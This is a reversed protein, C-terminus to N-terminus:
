DVSIRRSSLLVAARLDHSDARVQAIFRHVDIVQALYFGVPQTRLSTSGISSSPLVGAGDM